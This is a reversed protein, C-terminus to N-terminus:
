KRENAKAFRGRTVRSLHEKIFVDQERFRFLRNEESNKALLIAYKIKRSIFRTIHAPKNDKRESKLPYSIDIDDKRVPVDLGHHSNCADRCDAMLTDLIIALTDESVQIIGVGLM